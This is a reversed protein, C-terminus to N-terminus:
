FLRNLVMLLGAISAVWAISRVYPVGAAYLPVYVLRAWFYLQAGFATREDAVGAAMVALVAAAFFPFTELFNRSARDLRGAVGSPPPLVSDRAGANWALGRERTVFAAALMIQALGLAASWALMTLEIAM